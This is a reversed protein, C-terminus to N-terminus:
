GTIDALGMVLLEEIGYVGTAADCTDCKEERADPEYGHHEAGCEICFGTTDLQFMEESSLSPIFGDFCENVGNQKLVTIKQRIAEM